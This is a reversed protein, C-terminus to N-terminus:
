PCDEPCNCRNEFQGCIGDGCPICIPINEPTNIGEMDCSGDYFEIGCRRLLGPCCDVDQGSYSLDGCKPQGGAMKFHCIRNGSCDTMVACHELPCHAVDIKTCDRPYCTVNCGDRVGAPEECSILCDKSPCEGTKQYTDQCYQWLSSQAGASTSAALLITLILFAIRRM